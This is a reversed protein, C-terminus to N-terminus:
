YCVLELVYKIISNCLAMFIVNSFIGSTAPEFTGLLAVADIATFYPLHYQNFLLRIQNIPFDSTCIPPSFVRILKVFFILQAVMCADNRSCDIMRHWYYKTFSLSHIHSTCSHPGSAPSQM